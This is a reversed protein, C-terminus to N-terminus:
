EFGRAHWLAVARAAALAQAATVASIIVDACAIAAQATAAAQVELRQAARSPASAADVFLIDWAFLRLAKSRLDSVLSQGVEGFGLLCVTFSM